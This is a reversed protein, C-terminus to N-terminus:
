TVSCSFIGDRSIHKLSPHLQAALGLPTLSGSLLRQLQPACVVASECGGGASGAPREEPVCRAGAAGSSGPRRAGAGSSDPPWRQELNPPISSHAFLVLPM